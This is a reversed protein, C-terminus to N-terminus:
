SITNAVASPYFNPLKEKYRDFEAGDPATAPADVWEWANGLMNLAGYPSAGAAYATAPALSASGADTEDRAISAFNYHFRDGWPLDAWEGRACGEGV